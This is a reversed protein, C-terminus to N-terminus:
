FVTTIATTSSCRRPATRYMHLLPPPPQRIPCSPEMPPPCASPTYQLASLQFRTHRTHVARERMLLESSATKANTLQNQMASTEAIHGDIDSLNQARNACAGHQYQAPSALDTPMQSSKGGVLCRCVISRNVEAISTGMM